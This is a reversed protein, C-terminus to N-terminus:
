LQSKGMLNTPAYVNISLCCESSKLSSAIISIFSRSSTWYLSVVKRPDWLFAVGRSSAFSGICQCCGRSWVSSARNLMGDVSLKIEQIFFIDPSHFGIMKRIAKQRPPINLGRVNWSIVIM